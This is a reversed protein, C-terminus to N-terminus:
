SRQKVSITFPEFRSALYSLLAYIFIAIGLMELLEEGTSLLLYTLNGPGYLELHRGGIAEVGIAGAVFTAGSVLFLNRIDKALRMLFKGYAIALLLVALGYPIIWAFFLLGTSGLATRVPATLREHLAATEDISLFLFIVALGLWPFYSSGTRKHSLAIISLLLCAVLLAFSSYLTPVNMEQAFDFLEALGYIYDHDFYFRAIIVFLNACLLVLIISLFIALIQKPSVEINM